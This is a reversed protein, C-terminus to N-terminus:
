YQPVYYDQGLFMSISEAQLPFSKLEEKKFYLILSDILYRQPLTKLKNVGQNM